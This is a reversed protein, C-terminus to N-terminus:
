TVSVVHSPTDPVREQGGAVKVRITIITIIIKACAWNVMWELSPRATSCTNFSSCSCGGCSIAMLGWRFGERLGWRLGAGLVRELTGEEKGIYPDMVEKDDDALAKGQVLLM